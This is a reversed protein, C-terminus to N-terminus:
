RAARTIQLSPDGTRNDVTAGYFLASGSGVLVTLSGGAPLSAGGLFPGAAQQEHYDIPFSRVLTTVVSGSADRAILTVSAGADLTRVGINFRYATLDAPLLLVGKEGVQLAEEPRVLEETFGATGAAGGDNFVRVAAIPASGTTVLLDASGLGTGGVAPLLDAFSLTQGPALSYPLSPDSDSASHGSPHVVIRGAAPASDGNHLQVSTRFFSGGAGPTSGVVPIIRTLTAPTPESTCSLTVTYAGFQNALLSTAGITWTGSATLTFGVRSNTAGGFDDNSAVVAPTPDLLYLYADFSSSEMDITVTQGATGQFQILDLYSGSDLRCDALSIEGSSGSSPCSLSGFHNCEHDLLSLRGVTRSAAKPRKGPVSAGKGAAVARGGGMLALGALFAAAAAGITVPRTNL